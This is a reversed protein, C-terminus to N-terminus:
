NILKWNKFNRMSNLIRPENKNMFLWPLCICHRVRLVFEINIKKVVLFFNKAVRNLIAESWLPAKQDASRYLCAKILTLFIDSELLHVIPQFSDTFLPPCSIFLISPIGDDNLKRRKIVYEESKCQDAKTYHYYFPNYEMLRDPKLEYNGKTACGRRSCSNVRDFIKM